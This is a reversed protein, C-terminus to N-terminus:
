VPIGCGMKNEGKPPVAVSLENSAIYYVVGEFRETWLSFTVKHCQVCHVSLRSTSILIDELICLQVLTQRGGWFLSEKDHYSAVKTFVLIAFAVSNDHYSAVKTFVLPSAGKSPHM